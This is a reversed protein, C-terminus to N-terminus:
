EDNEDEIAKAKNKSGPKRGRKKDIGTPGTKGTTQLLLLLLLMHM